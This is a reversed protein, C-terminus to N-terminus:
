ISSSNLSHLENEKQSLLNELQRSKEADDIKFQIFHQFSLAEDVDAIWNEIKDKKQKDNLKLEDDRMFNNKVVFAKFSIESM